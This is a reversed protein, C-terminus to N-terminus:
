YTITTQTYFVEGYFPINSFYDIRPDDFFKKMESVIDYQEKGVINSLTANAMKINISELNNNEDFKILYELREGTYKLDSYMDLGSTGLAAENITESLCKVERKELTCEDVNVDYIMYAIVYNNVLDESPEKLNSEFSYDNVSVHDSAQGNVKINGGTIEGTYEKSFVGAQLAGASMEGEVKGVSSSEIKEIALDYYAQLSLIETEKKIEEKPKQTTKGCGVIFIFAFLIILTKKM